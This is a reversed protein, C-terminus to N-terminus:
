DVAIVLKAYESEFITKHRWRARDIHHCQVPLHAIDTGFLDGSAGIPQFIHISIFDLSAKELYASTPIRRRFVSM